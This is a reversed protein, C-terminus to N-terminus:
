SQKRAARLLWDSTFQVMPSGTAPDLRNKWEVRQWNSVRRIMKVRYSVTDVSGPLNFGDFANAISRAVASSYALCDVQLTVDRSLWGEVDTPDSGISLDTWCLVPYPAGDPPNGVFASKVGSSSGLLALVATSAALVRAPYSPAPVTASSVILDAFLKMPEDAVVVTM